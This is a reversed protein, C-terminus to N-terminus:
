LMLCCCNKSCALNRTFNGGNGLLALTTYFLSLSSGNVRSPPRFQTEREPRIIGLFSTWTGMSYSSGHVGSSTVSIFIGAMAPFRVRATWETALSASHGLEHIRSTESNYRDTIFNACGHETLKRNESM